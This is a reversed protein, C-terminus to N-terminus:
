FWVEYRDGQDLAHCTASVRDQSGGFAEIQHLSYSDIIVLDRPQYQISAYPRARMEATVEDSGQHLFDWVSLGGGSVPPQFMLILSFARVRNRLQTRTLGETDFHVDGGKEACYGNAPFVHVGPGCYGKRRVVPKGLARAVLDLMHAQMGPCHREVIEDSRAANAFYSDTLDTELHTYWARGLTFQIGDFNSTWEAKGAYVGALYKAREAETIADHFRVAVLGPADLAAVTRLGSERDASPRAGNQPNASAAGLTLDVILDARPAPPM